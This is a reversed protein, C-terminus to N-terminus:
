NADHISGSGSTNSTIVPHSKYYVDGSGSISVNLTSDATVECLGSGSITVVTNSTQFPFAHVNGSGSISIEQDPSSGSLNINGSGSIKSFTKSVSTLYADINGSGSVNLDVIGCSDFTNTLYINGSGSISLSSLHPISIYIKIPEFHSINNKDFKIEWKGSNVDLKIHDIINQQASIAVSQVPDRKIYIDANITNDIGSFAPLQVNQLIVEGKGRLCSTFIMATFTVALLLVFSIKKTKM